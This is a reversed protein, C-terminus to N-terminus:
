DRPMAEREADAIDDLPSPRASEAAFEGFDPLDPAPVAEDAPSLPQEPDTVGSKARRSEIPEDDPGPIADTGPM